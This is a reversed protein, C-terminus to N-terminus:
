YTHTHGHRGDAQRNIFVGRTVSGDDRLPIFTLTYRTPKQSSGNGERNKKMQKAIEQIEKPTEMLIQTNARLGHPVPDPKNTERGDESCSARPSNM